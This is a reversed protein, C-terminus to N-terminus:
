ISIAQSLQKFKVSIQIFTPINQLHVSLNPLGTEAAAPNKQPPNLFATKLRYPM